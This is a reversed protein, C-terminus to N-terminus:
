VVSKRDGTSFNASNQNIADGTTADRGFANDQLNQIRMMYGATWGPMIQAQGNFKVHTAQTPGLGHLYTNREGGDDWMTIEQAVYGSITLSVKRNGKRATTAELEAIREELDACCNGGLDAAQAAPSLVCAIAMVM